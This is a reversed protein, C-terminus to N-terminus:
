LLSWFATSLSTHPYNEINTKYFFKTLVLKTIPRWPWSTLGFYSTDWPSRRWKTLNSVLYMSVQRSKRCSFRTAEASTIFSFFILTVPPPAYLYASRRWSFNPSVYSEGGAIKEQAVHERNWPLLTSLSSSIVQRISPQLKRKFFMWSSTKM